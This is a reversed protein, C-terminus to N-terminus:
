APNKQGATEGGDITITDGNVFSSLPSVLWAIAQAVDDPTGLRAMPIRSELLSRRGSIALTREMMKTEIQGPCVANVRVAPALELALAKTLGLLAAKSATYLALGEEGAKGAISSVMVVSGEGRKLADLCLATLLTPARLNVSMVKEYLEANIDGFSSRATVGANNVLGALCGESAAIAQEALATIGSADSLDAELFTTNPFEKTLEDALTRDRGSFLVHYGHQALLRVTAAGIGQTGGTVLVYKQVGM